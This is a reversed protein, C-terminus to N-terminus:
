VPTGPRSITVPRLKYKNGRCLKGSCIMCDLPPTKDGRCHTFMGRRHGQWPHNEPLPTGTVKMKILQPWRTASHWDPPPPPMSATTQPSMKLPPLNVPPNACLGGPQGTSMTCARGGDVLKLEQGASLPRQVLVLSHPPLSVYGYLPM